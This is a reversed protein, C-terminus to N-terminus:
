GREQHHGHAQVEGVEHVASAEARDARELERGGDGTRIRERFRLDVVRVAEVLPFPLGAREEFAVPVRPHARLWRPTRDRVRHFFIPRAPWAKGSGRLTTM